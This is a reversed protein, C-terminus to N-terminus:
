ADEAILLTNSTGDSIDTLRYTKNVELVGNYNGVAQILGAAALSSLVGNDPAYDGVALRVTGFGTASFSDLVGNTPASPCNFIPVFTTRVAANAPDRFDLDLRYQQFLASQEVHPLIFAAWGHQITNPLVGVQPLSKNDVA